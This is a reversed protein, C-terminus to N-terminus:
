SRVARIRSIRFVESGNNERPVRPQRLSFSISPSEPRADQQSGKWSVLVGTRPAVMTWGSISPADRKVAPRRQGLRRFPGFHHYRIPAPSNRCPFGRPLAARSISGRGQARRCGKRNRISYRSFCSPNWASMRRNRTDSHPRTRRSHSSRNPPKGVTDDNECGSGAPRGGPIRRPGKGSTYFRGEWVESLRNKRPTREESKVQFEVVNRMFHGPITYLFLTNGAWNRIIKVQFTLSDLM